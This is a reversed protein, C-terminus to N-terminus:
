SVSIKNQLHSSKELIIIDYFTRAFHKLSNQNENFQNSVNKLKKKIWGLESLTVERNSKEGKWYTEWLMDLM